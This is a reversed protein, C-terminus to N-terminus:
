AREFDLLKDKILAIQQEILIKRIKNRIYLKFGEWVPGEWMPIVKQYKNSLIFCKATFSIFYNIKIDPRQRKHLGFTISKFTVYLHVSPDSIFSM